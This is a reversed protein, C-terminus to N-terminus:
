GGLAYGPTWDVTDGAWLAMCERITLMPWAAAILAIDDCDQDTFFAFEKLFARTADPLIGNCPETVNTTNM